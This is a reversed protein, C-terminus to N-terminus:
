RHPPRSTPGAANVRRVRALDACAYTSATLAVTESMSRRVTRNFPIREDNVRVQSPVRTALNLQVANAAVTTGPVSTTTVRVPRHFSPPVNVAVSVIRTM